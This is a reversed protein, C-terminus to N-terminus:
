FVRCFRKERLALTERLVRFVREGWLLFEAICCHRQFIKQSLGIVSRVTNFIHVNTSKPCNNVYPLQQCPAITSMPCNNRNKAPIKKRRNLCGIGHHKRGTVEKQPTEFCFPRLKIHFEKSVMQMSSSSLWGVQEMV